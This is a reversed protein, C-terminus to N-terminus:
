PSGPGLPQSRVRSPTSIFLRQGGLAHAGVAAFVYTGDAAIRVRRGPLRTGFAVRTVTRDVIGYVLTRRVGASVGYNRVAVVAHMKALNACQGPVDAALEHFQGNQVVGLRGRILRGGVVCTEGRGDQYVRVGWGFSDVPDVATALAPRQAVSVRAAEGADADSRVPSEDHFGTRTAVAVAGSVSLVLAIEIVVRAPRLRRSGRRARAKEEGLTRFSQELAKAASHESPIESRDAM